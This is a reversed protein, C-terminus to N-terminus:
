INKYETFGGRTFDYVLIYGRGAKPQWEYFNKVNPMLNELINVIVGGHCSIVASCIKSQKIINLINIYGKKVRENFQKTNEGGPCAFDGPNHNFKPVGHADDGVYQDTIWKQYIEDDKLQEYSKMEFIGFNYEQILPEIITEVDGYILNITQSTRLLGSTFFIDPNEPYINQSKLALIEKVGNESLPLDTKGCYLKKENAETLGHRLLYIEIKNEIKNNDTDRL